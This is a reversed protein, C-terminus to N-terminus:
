GIVIYDALPMVGATSDPQSWREAIGALIADDTLYRLQLTIQNPNQSSMANVTNAVTGYPRTDILTPNLLVSTCESM